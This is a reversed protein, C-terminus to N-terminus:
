SRKLARAFTWQGSRLVNAIADDLSRETESVARARPRDTMLAVSRKLALGRIPVARLDAEGAAMWGIYATFGLGARVMAFAAQITDVEARVSLHVGARTAASELELRLGARPLGNLVMPLGALTAIGITSGALVPSNAPGILCIAEEAVARLTLGTRPVEGALLAIDLQGDLLMDYLRPAFAEVVRLRVAPCRQALDAVVLPALLPALGPSFGVSAPGSAERKRAILDHELQDFQRLLFEARDQLIAGDPTLAVGRRHRHFLRLGFQEELLQVQRSLAPQTVGLLEAAKGFNAHRAVTCFYHLQRRDM